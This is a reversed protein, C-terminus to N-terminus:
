ALEEDWAADARRFQRSDHPDGSNCMPCSCKRLNDAWRLAKTLDGHPGFFRRVVPIARAIAKQRQARRWARNRPTLTM